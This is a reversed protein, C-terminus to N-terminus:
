GSKERGERGGTAAAGGAVLATAYSKGQFPSRTQSSPSARSWNNSNQSQNPKPMRSKYQEMARHHAVQEKLWLHLSQLGKRRAGDEVWQCYKLGYLRDMKGMVTSFLSLSEANTHHHTQWELLFTGLRSRMAQINKSDGEKLGPLSLIAEQRVLLQAEEGGYTEELDIVAQRYGEPSYVFSRVFEKLDSSNQNMTGRLIMLKYDLHVKSTHVCPIFGARWELYSRKDGDFKPLTNMAIKVLENATSGVKQPIVAWPVPFSLWYSDPM